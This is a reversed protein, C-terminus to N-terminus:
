LNGANSLYFDARHVLGALEGGHYAYIDIHQGLKAYLEDKLEKGSDSDLYAQLMACCCNINKQYRSFTPSFERMIEAPAGDFFDSCPEYFVDYRERWEQVWVRNNLFAKIKSIMMDVYAPYDNEELASVSEFIRKYPYIVNPIKNHNFTLITNCLKRMKETQNQIITKKLREWLFRQYETMAQDDIFCGWFYYALAEADVLDILTDQNLPRFSGVQEDLKQCLLEKSKTRGLAFALEELCAAQWELVAMKQHLYKQQKTILFGTIEPHALISRVDEVPFDLQRMQLIVKLTNIDEDSFEYYGNDSIKPHILQEQIYYHIAKKTLGTKNMVDRTRM